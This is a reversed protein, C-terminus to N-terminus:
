NKSFKITDDPSTRLERPELFHSTKGHDTSLSGVDGTNIEFPPRSAIHNIPPAVRSSDLHSISRFVVLKMFM